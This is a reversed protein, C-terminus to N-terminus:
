CWPHHGLAKVQSPEIKALDLMEDVQEQLQERMAYPVRRPPQKIPRADGTSINHHTM